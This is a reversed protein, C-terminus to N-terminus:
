DIVVVVYTDGGKICNAGGKKGIVNSRRRTKRRREAWVREDSKVMKRFYFSAIWLAIDNAKRRKAGFSKSESLERLTKRVNQICQIITFRFRFLMTRRM